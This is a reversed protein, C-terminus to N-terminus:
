QGMVAILLPSSLSSQLIILHFEIFYNYKQICMFFFYEYIYTHTHKLIHIHQKRRYFSDFIDVAMKLVTWNLITDRWRVECLPVLM